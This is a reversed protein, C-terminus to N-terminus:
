KNIKNHVTDSTKFSYIFQFIGIHLYTIIFAFWFEDIFFKEGIFKLHM